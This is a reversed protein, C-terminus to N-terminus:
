MEVAMRAKLIDDLAALVGARARQRSRFEDALQRQRRLSPKGHEDLPVVIEVDAKINRLSARFVRDFGYRERTSKLYCYVYLPDLDDSIVQLRGCHDTTAFVENASIMNWDFIGDIGWLLSPRSFESLNSEKICGFPSLANASYVPIGEIVHEKRLVREGISLQFYRRDGLSLTASPDDVNISFTARILPEATERVAKQAREIRRLRDGITRMRGFDFNGSETVPLPIILAEVTGPYIKTYENLRGDVRRGVAAAVFQPELAFRLYTLDPVETGERPVLVGRDRTASFTGDVEQIRGGYGNMVWTLHPGAYDFSDIYGFPRVLSASYVPHSGPHADVYDRIYRPKGSRAYFLEGIAVQKYATM